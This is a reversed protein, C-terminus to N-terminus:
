ITASIAQFLNFAKDLYECLKCDKTAVPPVQSRLLENIELLVPEIWADNGEYPILKTTFNLRDNFHGDGKIGNTYVFYATNSVEFGNERLLWQYVEVQRKYSVGWGTEISVYGEKSTSKYDVVYLVKNSDVWIDDVAGTIDLGTAHHHTRVGIFNERWDNLSPHQFPILNINAAQLIPPVIQLNRYHNFENKLLHDVALNLTFPPGFPAAIKKVADLWFCRKCRTFNEIGTRSIKM